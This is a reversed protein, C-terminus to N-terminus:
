PGGSCERLAELTKWDRVASVNRTALTVLLDRNHPKDPMVAAAGVTANLGSAVNIRYLDTAVAETFGPVAAALIQAHEAILAQECARRDAVSLSGALFYALDFAPSGRSVMQWDILYAVPEDGRRDFMVNDVRPDAHILTEIGTRHARWKGSLPAFARIIAMDEEGMLDAYRAEFTEVGKSYYEGAGGDASRNIAMWPLRALGPANCYFAHMRALERTVAGAEAISCGAIQDGPTCFAALDELVLNVTLGDDSCAVHWARATRMPPTAGFYRYACAEARYPEIAAALAQADPYNSNFKAVVSTPEDAVPKNYGITLRVTDSMNGHGLPQARVMAIRPLVAGAGHFVAQLWAEDIEGVSALLAPPPLDVAVAADGERGWAGKSRAPSWWEVLRGGSQRFVDIGSLVPAGPASSRQNWVACALDGEAFLADFTTTAATGGAGCMPDALLDDLSVTESSGTRYRILGGGAISSLGERDGRSLADFFGQVLKAPDAEGAGPAGVPTRPKLIDTEGGARGWFGKAYATNWCDTLRGDAAEFVEIGSLEVHEGARTVMNWVSCVFRDDGLLVEHTFLPHLKASQEGVRAIQESHSLAVVCMPDHRVIPDRCIAAIRGADRANWVDSWYARILEAPSATRGTKTDDAAGASM